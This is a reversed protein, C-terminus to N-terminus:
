PFLKPIQIGKFVEEFVNFFHVRRFSQFKIGKHELSGKMHVSTWM